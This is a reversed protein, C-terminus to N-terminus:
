FMNFTTEGIDDDDEEDDESSNYLEDEDSSSLEILEDESDSPRYLSPDETNNHSVDMVLYPCKSPNSARYDMQEEETLTQLTCIFENFSKDKNSLQNWLRSIHVFRERYNPFEEKLQEMYEKYFINYGSCCSKKPEGRYIKVSKRRVKRKRVPTPRKIGFDDQFKQQKDSDLTFLYDNMKNTYERKMKHCRISFSRREDDSLARWRQAWTSVYQKKAVGQMFALQEKCYLNYGSMPPKAPAADGKSEQRIIKQRRPKGKKTSSGLEAAAEEVLETLTQEKRMKKTSSGLEAAAEEVLETLTREKRMTQSLHKWMKKCEKPPFPPFAVKKWDLKKLVYSYAETSDKESINTKLATLLDRLNENTWETNMIQAENMAFAVCSDEVVNTERTM